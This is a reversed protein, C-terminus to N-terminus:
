ANTTSDGFPNITIGYVATPTDQNSSCPFVRIVELLASVLGLRGIHQAAACLGRSLAVDPDYSGFSKQVNVIRTGDAYDATVRYKYRLYAM